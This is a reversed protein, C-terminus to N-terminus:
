SSSSVCVTFSNLIKFFEYRNTSSNKLYVSIATSEMLNQFITDNNISDDGNKYSSNEIKGLLNDFRTLSNTAEFLNMKLINETSVNGIEYFGNRLFGLKFKVLKSQKTKLRVHKQTCGLWLYKKEIDNTKSNKVIIIIDFENNISLNTLNVMVNLFCINSKTFDHVINYKSNLTILIVDKPDSKYNSAPSEFGDQIPQRYILKLQPTSTSAMNSNLSSEGLIRIPLIGYKIIEIDQDEFTRSKLSFFLYFCL